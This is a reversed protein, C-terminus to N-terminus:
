FTTPRAPNSGAIVATHVRRGALSSWRGLLCVYDEPKVYIREGGSDKAWVNIYKRDWM